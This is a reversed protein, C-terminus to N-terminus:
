EQVGDDNGDGVLLPAAREVPAHPPAWRRVREEPPPGTPRWVWAAVITLAVALGALGMVLARWKAEASWPRGARLSAIERDRDRVEDVLTDVRHRLAEQDSRFPM